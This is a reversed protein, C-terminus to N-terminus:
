ERSIGNDRSTPVVRAWRAHSGQPAATIERRLRCRTVGGPRTPCDRDRSARARSSREQRPASMRRLRDASVLRRRLPIACRWLRFRVLFQRPAREPSARCRVCSLEDPLALRAIPIRCSWAGIIAWTTQAARKRLSRARACPQQQRSGPARRMTQREGQGPSTDRPQQGTAASATPRCSRYSRRCV